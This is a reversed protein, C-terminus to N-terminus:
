INVGDVDKEVVKLFARLHTEIRNRYINEGVVNERLYNFLIDENKRIRTLCLSHIGDGKDFYFRLMECATLIDTLKQGILINLKDQIEIFTM